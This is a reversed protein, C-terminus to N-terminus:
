IDLEASDLAQTEELWEKESSMLNQMIEELKQLVIARLTTWKM